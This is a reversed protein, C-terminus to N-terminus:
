PLPKTSTNQIPNPYQRIIIIVIVVPATIRISGYPPRAKYRYVRSTRSRALLSERGEGECVGLIVFGFGFSM